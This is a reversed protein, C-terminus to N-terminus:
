KLTQNGPGCGKSPDIPNAGAALVFTPGPDVARSDGNAPPMRLNRRLQRFSSSLQMRTEERLGVLFALISGAVGAFVATLIFPVVGRFQGGIWFILSALCSFIVVFRLAPSLWGLTVASVTTDFRKAVLNVGYLGSCILNALVASLLVGVFHLTPGLWISGLVVLGGELLSIYKFNGIRKLIGTIGTYCRTVCTCYLYAAACIDAWQTWSVKGGTWFSVLARNGFAGLIAFLGAAVATISVITSLRERFRAIQGHVVMESFGPASFDSIKFVIQQALTFSKTCISWVGAADLGILRSVLVIQSASICQNAIQLVFLDRSFGLIERFKAGTIKGWNQYSPLFGFKLMALTTISIYVVMGAFNALALSYYRLGAHFGIWLVLGSSLFIALSALNVVDSRQHSWLPLWFPTTVFNLAAVSCQLFMLMQFGSRLQHPIQLLRAFLHGGFAGVLFIGAAQFVFVISATKLTAGYEGGNVDDKYDILIRSVSQGVGFDLLAFYGTIQAVVAWLGFEERTLYHLALPISALTYVVNAALALYGSALASAFRKTRSM